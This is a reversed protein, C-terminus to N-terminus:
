VIAFCISFTLYQSFDQPNTYGTEIMQRAISSELTQDIKRPARLFMHYCLEHMRVIDIRNEEGTKAGQRTTLPSFRGLTLCTSFVEADSHTGDEVNRLQRQFHFLHFIAFTCQHM